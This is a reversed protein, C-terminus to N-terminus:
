GQLETIAPTLLCFVNYTNWFFEANFRRPDGGTPAGIHVQECVSDAIDRGPVTVRALLPAPISGSVRDFFRAKFSPSSVCYRITWSPAAATDVMQRGSDQKFVGLLCPRFHKEVMRRATAEFSAKYKEALQKVAAASPTHSNAELSFREGQFLLDAAIANAEQEFALRTSASMGLEDCVYLTHQHHPLIYHGIEHLVSFRTQNASLSHDTAVLRDSFSLLARPQGSSVRRQVEQPLERGFDFSLYDLKLYDLLEAPNVADHDVQGSERLLFRVLERPELELYSAQFSTM